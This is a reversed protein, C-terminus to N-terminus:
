DQDDVSEPLYNQCDNFFTMDIEQAPIKEITPNDWTGGISYYSVGINKLPKRLLKTFLYVAAAVGPGGFVAGGMPLADSLLPQVMALQNYTEGIMDTVGVLLIDVSTGKMALNCTYASGNKFQFEASLRNFSLGKKFIDSFDLVLRKPLEAISLLGLVKGAIPDIATIRGDKINVKVTGNAYFVGDSSPIYPWFLDLDITLNKSSLIGQFGFEEMLAKTNQSKLQADVTTSYNHLQDTKKILEVAGTVLLSDNKIAINDLIFGGEKSIINMKLPGFTTELFVELIESKPLISASLSQQIVGKSFQWKGNKKRLLFSSSLAEGLLGNITMTKADSLTIDFKAKTSDGLLNQVMEPLTSIAKGLDIDWIIKTPTEEPTNSLYIEAEWEVTATLFEALPLNLADILKISESESKLLILQSYSDKSYPDIQISAPQGLFQAKLSNAKFRARAIEILGSINNIELNSGTMAYDMNELEVLAMNYKYKIRGSLNSFFATTIGFPLELNINKFDLAVQKVSESNLNLLQKVPIQNFLFGDVPSRTVLIQSGDLKISKFRPSRAILSGILNIKIEATRLNIQGSGEQQSLRISIRDFTLIPRLSFEDFTPWQFVLNQYDIIAGYSSNMEEIIHTKLNPIQRPLFTSLAVVALFLMAAFALCIKLVRRM